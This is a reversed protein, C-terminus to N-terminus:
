FNCVVMGLGINEDLSSESVDTSGDKLSLILEPNQLQLEKLKMDVFQKLLCGLSKGNTVNGYRMVNWFGRMELYDYVQRALLLDNNAYLRCWKSTALLFFRIKQKSLHPRTKAVRKVMVHPSSILYQKYARDGISRTWECNGIVLKRRDDIFGGAARIRDLEHKMQQESHNDNNNKVNKPDSNIDNDSDDDEDYYEDEDDDDDRKVSYRYTEVDSSIKSDVGQTEDYDVNITQNSNDLEQKNDQSRSRVVISESSRTESTSPISTFAFDCTMRKVRDNYPQTDDFTIDMSNIGLRGRKKEYYLIRGLGVNSCWFKRTHSDYWISMAFTGSYDKPYLALYQKDTNMYADRLQTVRDDPLSQLLNEYLHTTTFEQALTGRHGEVIGWFHDLGDNNNQPFSVSSSSSIWGINNNKQGACAVIFENKVVVALHPSNSTANQEQVSPSTSSPARITTDEMIYVDHKTMATSIWIGLFCFITIGLGVIIIAVMWGLVEDSSFM